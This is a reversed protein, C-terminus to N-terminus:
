FYFKAALQSLRGAQTGGIYGFTSNPNTLTTDGWSTGPNTFQTHNFVNDTEMRLELRYGRDQSFYLNKALVLNTNNIGPGHGPYRHTDGFEGIPENVWSTKAVYPSSGVNPDRHRPNSKVIPAVQNPADPCAYFNTFDPCYLSDASGGAYSVDFPFGTAATVIGTVEWGSVLLNLPDHWSRGPLMPTVYIPSFVIRQRVDFASDGINLSPAFQNYGRTSSEGFGANEFSSGDDMAHSYTYSLTFMLGHTTNKQVNAQLSHYSSSSGSDVQGVDLIQPNNLLTHSPFFYSQLERFITNPGTYAPNGCYTTDAVCAAHGAATIPNADTTSQNHRALSGVYSVLAIIQSPFERQISLQINEAYPARFDAGYTSVDFLANLGTAAEEAPWNITAGKSPFTYPFPNVAAPEDNNIPLFPNAFQPEGGPAGSASTGFPPTALTQLASEEETRDYYIGFGGRLSFAGPKSGSLFGLNSPAWAFGLRPGFESYLTTAKGANNCGGDGPYVWGTPAGPFVNTNEGPVICIIAEGGYQNNHLPTDISYGLGYNLTFTPSLKWQDQAYVYNLFADAIIEAGSNQSYGGPIGLLFDVGGDGTSYTAGPSFSYSGSNVASFPNHVNFRRGDYGFKLTHNGWVKSVSDDLQTVQDIRPQPGNTSFGLTFGGGSNLSVSITPVSEAAKNQPNINFGLSTPDVTTLPEVADFNFRTYHASFDNVLSASFQHVYDATYQQITELDQDGFGPLTAGTFPLGQTETEKNYIGLFTITNTANPSVDFRGIYQNITFVDSPNFIFGYTGNNPAPVYKSILSTAISNFASTPIVGGLDYACQSWTEPGANKGSAGNTGACGPITISAPIPSGSWNGWAPVSNTTPNYVPRSGVTSPNDEVSFNGKLNNADYVDSQGSGNSDPVTQKTGQYAGFFFVKDHLIPGGVTGGFINQHYPPVIGQGTTVSKQFFTLTNLFTDRYFEFLDGHFHNTGAKITASVIGGSNRDYEANLPGDILNFQDIADLNPALALTNLAIDNTDAGNILYESQQTQGGSVSFTGFRDSSAQVGPEILELGTFTRSILPLEVMQDGTVVNSLEMDTTNVQVASAAVEVVESTSGVQLQIPEEYQQDINVVIGKANYAKFGAATVSITYTGVPVQAFLFTGNALTNTVQKVGTAENTLTVQINPLVAGQPDTVTGSIRANVDVARALALGGLLLVALATVRWFFQKRM